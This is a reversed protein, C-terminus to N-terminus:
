QVNGAAPANAPVAVVQDGDAVLEQGVVILDIPDPLGTVWVGEVSEKIVNVIHFEVKSEANVIRVGVKGSDDLALVAPSIRHAKVENLPIVIKATIGDRVIENGKVLEAEVSYTRTQPDATRGIFSIKGSLSAAGNLAVEVPQGLVLLHVDREPVQGTALLSSEDLLRACIGNRDILAGVQAQRDEVYADFPARMTLHEVNLEALKVAARASELNAKSTAMATSAVLGEKQLRLAGDYDIQAQNFAAQARALQVPRDDEALECLVDGKKVRQGKAVPTAIIKGGIEAMVNVVRKAETKGMIVLEIRQSEANIRQTRVKVAEKQNASGEISLGVKKESPMIIGSLMWLVLLSIIVVAITYTKKM